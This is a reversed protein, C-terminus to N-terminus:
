TAQGGARGGGSNTGERGGSSPSDYTCRFSQPHVENARAEDEAQKAEETAKKEQELKELEEKTPKKPM